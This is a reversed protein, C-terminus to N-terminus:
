IELIPIITHLDHGIAGVSKRGESSLRAPTEPKTPEKLNRAVTMSHCSNSWVRWKGDGDPDAPNPM